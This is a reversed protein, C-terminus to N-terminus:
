PHTPNFIAKLKRASRCVPCEGYVDDLQFAPFGLKCKSCAVLSQPRRMKCGACNCNEPNHSLDIIM